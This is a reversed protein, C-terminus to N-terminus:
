LRYRKKILTPITFNRDYDTIGWFHRQFFKDFIVCPIDQLKFFYLNFKSTVPVKEHDDILSHKILLEYWPNGNFVFLKPRHKVIFNVSNKFRTTLYNLQDESLHSPLSIGESHYPILEVNTLYTDFLSWKNQFEHRPSNSLLGSFFHWLSTYYPSEFRNASFYLFFNLYLHQYHEWSKRAKADEKPNNIQSYGPNIGFMVFPASQYRGVIYVPCNDGRLIKGGKLSLLKSIYDVRQQYERPKNICLEYESKIEQLLDFPM